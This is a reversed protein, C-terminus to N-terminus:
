SDRRFAGTVLTFCRSYSPDDRDPKSKQRCGVVIVSHVEFDPRLRRRSAAKTWGTHKAVVFTTRCLWVPWTVGFRIKTSISRRYSLVSRPSPYPRPIRPGLALGLLGIQGCVTKRAAPRPPLRVTYVQLNLPRHCNTDGLGRRIM